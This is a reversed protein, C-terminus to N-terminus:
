LKYNILYDHQRLDALVQEVKTQRRVAYNRRFLSDM